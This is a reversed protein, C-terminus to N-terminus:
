KEAKWEYTLFREGFRQLTGCRRFGEKELLRRMIRNDEHTDARLCDARARCFAMVAAFVGKVRGTSAVRHLAAYAGGSFGAEPQEYEEDRDFGLAFVGALEGGSELVWCEGRAIDDLVIEETPYDEWQRPNGTGRMFERARAFLAMLEPLEEARALRVTM